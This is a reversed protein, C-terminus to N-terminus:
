TRPSAVRRSAAEHKRNLPDELEAQEAPGRIDVRRDLEDDTLEAEALVYDRRRALVKGWFRIRTLARNSALDKIALAVAFAEDQPVAVGCRATVQLVDLIDGGDGCADEESMDLSRVGEDNHKLSQCVKLAFHFTDSNANNASRTRANSCFHRREQLMRSTEEFAIMASSARNALAFHVVEFLHDYLSTGSSLCPEKLFSMEENIEAEMATQNSEEPRAPESQESRLRSKSVGNM